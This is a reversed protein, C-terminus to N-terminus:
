YGKNKDIVNQMKKGKMFAELNKCFLEVAREEHYPTYGAYHATIIVNKMKWLKSSKPLPEQEFVDLGAGRIRSNKLAAILAKEDLVAGRGINILISSKKMKAFEKKGISRRTEDTLPLCIVVYDSEKLLERLKKSPLIKDIYKCKRGSRNTGMTKCGFAKCIKAIHQGISGAGVIGVTKGFLEDAQEFVKWEKKEQYLIASKLGRNLALMLAVAHEGVTTDYIGKSNTLIAKSNGIGGMLFKDVGAFTTHIWKLKKYKRFDEAVNRVLLIDADYDAGVVVDVGCRRIRAISERSAVKMNLVAVKM